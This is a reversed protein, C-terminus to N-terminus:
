VQVKDPIRHDIISENVHNVLIGSVEVYSIRPQKNIITDGQVILDYLYLLAIWHYM